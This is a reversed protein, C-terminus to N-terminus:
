GVEPSGTFFIHNFPLKLLETSVSVDGEILAVESEDFLESIMKKMLASTRPTNESPKIM